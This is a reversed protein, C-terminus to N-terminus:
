KVRERNSLMQTTEQRNDVASVRVAQTWESGLGMQSLSVRMEYLLAPTLLVINKVSVRIAEKLLLTCGDLGPMTPQLSLFLRHPHKLVMFPSAPPIELHRLRM